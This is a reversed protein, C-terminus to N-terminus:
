VNELLHMIQTHITKLVVAVIRLVVKHSLFSIIFDIIIFLDM